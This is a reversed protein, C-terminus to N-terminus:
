RDLAEGPRAIKLNRATADAVLAEPGAPLKNTEFIFAVVDAAQASEVIVSGDPPMGLRISTVLQFVSKGEWNNFFTDGGLLPGELKPTVPEFTHCRACTKEFFAKGRAAQEATYVGDLTTKGQQGGSVTAPAAASLAAAYAGAALVFLLARM